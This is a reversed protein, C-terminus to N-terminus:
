DEFIGSTFSPYKLAARRTEGTADNLTRKGQMELRSGGTWLSKDHMGQRGIDTEAAAVARYLDKGQRAAGGRRQEAIEGSGPSACEKQCARM